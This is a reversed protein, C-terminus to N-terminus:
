SGNAYIAKVEDAIIDVGQKVQSEEQSYTLRICEHKHRWNDMEMGPFFYHGSVVLVGRKKLRQYLALSDIPLDKFWLWLFMAGEPKHVAYSCRADKFAHHIAQIASHMKRQYHPNIVENSLRLIDGSTVMDLALMSGTSGSALNMIANINTLAHIIEERAIVIGTRAAPLGFKSLSMCVVTNENWLPTAKSYVLNPFPTGYACDIILPIKNSIALQNLHALEDDSIVNGTPNTPRSVCLAATDPKINFENFNVHYKFLHDDLMEINPRTATFFHDTLGVDSYGIYEPALPFQIKKHSGDDHVGALLNFLMFFASQSGNSLLINRATIPWGLENNLLKALAQSFEIHGQPPDYVGVLQHLQTPDDIIKQLRIKTFTEIEPIHSPSGGGMMIMPQDGNLARGLDDMLSLIGAHQTFKKGFISLKM